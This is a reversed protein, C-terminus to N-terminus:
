DGETPVALAAALEDRHREAVAVAAVLAVSLTIRRGLDGAATLTLRTLADRAEPTLNMSVYRALTPAERACTTM